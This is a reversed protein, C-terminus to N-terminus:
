SRGIGVLTVHSVQVLEVARKQRVTAGLHEHAKVLLSRVMHSGALTFAHRLLFNEVPPLQIALHNSNTQFRMRQVSILQLGDKRTMHPMNPMNAHKLVHRLGLKERAALQKPPHSTCRLAAIRICCIRFRAGELVSIAPFGSCLQM